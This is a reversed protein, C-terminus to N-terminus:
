NEFVTGASIHIYLGSNYVSCGIVRRTIYVGEVKEKKITCMSDRKENVLRCRGTSRSKGYIFFVAENLLSSCVCWGVISIVCGARRVM